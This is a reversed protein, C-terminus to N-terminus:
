LRRASRSRQSSKSRSRNAVSRRSAPRQAAQPEHVVDFVVGDAVQPVQQDARGVGVGSIVENRDNQTNSSNQCPSARAATSAACPSVAPWARTAAM